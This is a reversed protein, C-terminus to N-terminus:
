HRRACLRAAKGSATVLQQILDQKRAAFYKTDLGVLRGQGQHPRPSKSRRVTANIVAQQGVSRRRGAGHVRRCTTAQVVICGRLVVLADRIQELIVKIRGMTASPLVLVRLALNAM